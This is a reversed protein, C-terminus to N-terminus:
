VSNSDISVFIRPENQFVEKHNWDFQKLPKHKGGESQYHTMRLFVGDDPWFTKTMGAYSETLRTGLEIEPAPTHDSEIVRTSTAAPILLLPGAEITDNFRM